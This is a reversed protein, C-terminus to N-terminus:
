TISVNGIKNKEKEYNRNPTTTPIIQGPRWFVPRSHLNEDGETIKSM